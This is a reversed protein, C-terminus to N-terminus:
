KFESENGNCQKGNGWKETHIIIIPRTKGDFLNTEIQIYVFLPSTPLVSVENLADTEFLCVCVCM